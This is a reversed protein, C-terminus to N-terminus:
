KRKMESAIYGIVYWVFLILGPYGILWMGREFETMSDGKRVANATMLVTYDIFISLM